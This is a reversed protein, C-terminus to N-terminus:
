DDAGPFCQGWRGFSKGQMQRRIGQLTDHRDVGQGVSTTIGNIVLLVTHSKYLAKADLIDLVIDAIFPELLVMVRITGLARLFRSLGNRYRVHYPKNTRPFESGIHVEEIQHLPLGKCSLLALFERGTDFSISLHTLKPASFRDLGNSSIGSVLSLRTLRPYVNTLTYAANPKTIGLGLLNSVNEFQYRAAADADMSADTVTSLDPLIPLSINNAKFTRLSPTAPFIPMSSIMGDLCIEELKPTPFSLLWALRPQRSLVDSPDELSFRRWRQSGKGDAGALLGIAHLCLSVTDARDMPAPTVLINIDLLSNPSCRSLRLPIRSCWTQLDDTNITFRHWLHPYNCAAQSWYKCILLLTEPPQSYTETDAYYEFIQFLINFPLRENLGGVDQTRGPNCVSLGSDAMASQPPAPPSRRSKSAMLTSLTNYFHKASMVQRLTPPQPHHSPLNVRGRGSQWVALPGAGKRTVPRLAEIRLRELEPYDSPEGKRFNWPLHM